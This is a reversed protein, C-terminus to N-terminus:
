RYIRQYKKYKTLLKEELNKVSSLMLMLCLLKINKVIKMNVGEEIIINTYDKSKYVFYFRDKTGLVFKLRLM